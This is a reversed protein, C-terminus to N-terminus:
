PRAAVGRVQGVATNDVNYSGQSVGEANFRYVTNFNTGRGNASLVTNGYSALTCGPMVSAMSQTPAILGTATSTWSQGADLSRYIATGAQNLIRGNVYVLGTSFTQHARPTWTTGDPSTQLHNAQTGSGGFLTAIFLGNVNLISAGGSTNQGSEVLVRRTWTILDPSTAIFKGYLSASSMYGGVAIYMGNGYVVDTVGCAFTSQSALNTQPEGRLTWNQLDQSEYCQTASTSAVANNNYTFAVWRNNVYKVCSFGQAGNKLGLINFSGTSNATSTLSLTSWNVGDPSTHLTKTSVSDDGKYVVWRGNGYTVGTGSRGPENKWTIGDVSRALGSTGVVVFRDLTTNNVNISFTRDAFAGATDTARITFNYTAM